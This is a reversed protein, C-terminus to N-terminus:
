TVALRTYDWGIVCGFAVHNLSNNAHCAEWITAADQKLM